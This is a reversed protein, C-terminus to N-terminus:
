NGLNIYCEISSFILFLGELPSIKVILAIEEKALHGSVFIYQNRIVKSVSVGKRVQKLSDKVLFSPLLYSPLSPFFFLFSFLLFLFDNKQLSVVTKYEQPSM